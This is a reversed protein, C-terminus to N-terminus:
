VIYSHFHWFTFVCHIYIHLLVALPHHCLVIIGYMVLGGQM